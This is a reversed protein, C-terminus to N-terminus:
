WDFRLYYLDKVLRKRIELQVHALKGGHTLHDASRISVYLVRQPKEVYFIGKYM